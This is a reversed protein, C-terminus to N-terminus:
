SKMNHAYTSLTKDQMLARRINQTIVRDSTNEKQRDAAVAGKARDRKNVATNDAPSQAGASLV